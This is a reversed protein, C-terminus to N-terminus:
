RIDYRRRKTAPAKHGVRRMLKSLQMYNSSFRELRKIIKQSRKSQNKEAKLKATLELVLDVPCGGKLCDSAADITAKRELARERAKQTKKDIVTGSQVMGEPVNAMANKNPRGSPLIQTLEKIAEVVEPTPDKVAELDAVLQSVEDLPCGDELCSAALDVGNMSPAHVRRALSTPRAPRTPSKAFLNTTLADAGTKSPKKSYSLPEKTSAVDFAEILNEAPFTRVMGGVVKDLANKNPKEQALLAELEEITKLAEPSPNEMAKLSTLLETVM